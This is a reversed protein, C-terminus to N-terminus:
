KGIILKQLNQCNKKIKQLWSMRFHCMERIDLFSLRNGTIPQLLYQCLNPGKFTAELVHLAEIQHSSKSLVELWTEDNGGDYSKMIVSKINPCMTLIAKMAAKTMQYDSIVQLNPLTSVQFYFFYTQIEKHILIFYSFLFISYVSVFIKFTPFYAETRHVFCTQFNM